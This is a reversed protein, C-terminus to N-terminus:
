FYHMHICMKAILLEFVHKRMYTFLLKILLQQRELCILMGLTYHLTILGSIHVQTHSHTSNGKKADFLSCQNGM